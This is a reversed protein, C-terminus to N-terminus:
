SIDPNLASEMKDIATKMLFKPIIKIAKFLATEEYVEVNGERFQILFKGMNEPDFTTSLYYSFIYSKIEESDYDISSRIKSASEGTQDSIIEALEDKADASLMVRRLEEKTLDLNRDEIGEIKMDDFSKFDVVFIKYYKEDVTSFLNKQYLEEMNDLETASLTNFSKNSPAITVGTLFKDTGNIDDMLVFMNTSNGFNSGFDEADKVVLYGFVLSVVILALFAFTFIRFFFGFIFLSKKLWYAIIFGVIILLIIAFFELM